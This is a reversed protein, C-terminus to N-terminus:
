QWRFKSPYPLPKHMLLIQSLVSSYKYELVIGGPCKSIIIGATSLVSAIIKHPVWVGGVSIGDGICTVATKSLYVEIGWSQPQVKNVGEQYASASICCTFVMVLVLLISIFRKVISKKM